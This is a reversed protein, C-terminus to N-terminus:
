IYEKRLFKEPNDKILRNLREASIRKELKKVADEMVPMREKTNHCDSGLFHIEKEEIMRCLKRAGPAFRGGLLSQSNAQFYCGLELAQQRAIKNGLLARVREVHAIVPVFGEETLERIGSLTQRESSDPHFEVLLYRSGALTLIRGKEIGRSIGERYFIENGSLVQMGPDLEKAMEDARACLDLIQQNDQRHGPYNHPTAIITRVGQGYAMSLMQRTEEWNRSGDDIGPLIHTHIDLYGTHEMKGGTRRGTGSAKKQKKRGAKPLM